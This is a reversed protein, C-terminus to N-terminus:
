IKVLKQERKEYSCLHSLGWKKAKNIFEEFMYGIYEPRHADSGLILAIDRKIMEKVIDDAPFQSGVNKLTGSTNIEIAMGKNKIRDLLDLLKQWTTESYKPVNPRLLVRHNDFHAIVDFFDTDVLKYLKNIYELNIKDISYKELADSSERPDLIIIPSDHWKIDHIAALLYDIDDMFPELVKKQRTLARGPTAFNIETSILIKIKDKYKERLSKIEEIYNSFENVEMSARKIVDELQPDDIIVGLPFHDTIGIEKLNKEIAVKVYDEIEGRAHGCRRNHSHYDMLKM